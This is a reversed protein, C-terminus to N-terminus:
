LAYSCQANAVTPQGRAIMWEGGEERRRQEEACPHFSHCFLEDLSQTRQVALAPAPAFLPRM